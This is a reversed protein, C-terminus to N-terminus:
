CQPKLPLPVSLYHHPTVPFPQLRSVWKRSSATGYVLETVQLWAVESGQAEGNGPLPLLNEM